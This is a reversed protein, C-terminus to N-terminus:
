FHVKDSTFISQFNSLIFRKLCLVAFIISEPHFTASFYTRFTSVQASSKGMCEVNKAICKQIKKPFICTKNSFCFMIWLTFNPFASKITIILHFKTISSCCPDQHWLSPMAFRNWARWFNQLLCDDMQSRGLCGSQPGIDWGGKFGTCFKQCSQQLLPKYKRDYIANESGVFNM